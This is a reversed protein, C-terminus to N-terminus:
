APATATLSQYALTMSGSACIANIALQCGGAPTLVVQGSVPIGIGDDAVAATGLAVDIRETGINSLVVRQRTAGAALVVTTTAGVTIGGITGATALFGTSADTAPNIVTEAVNLLGANGINADVNNVISAAAAEDMVEWYCSASTPAGTSIDTEVTLYKSNGPWLTLDAVYNSGPIRIVTGGMGITETISDVLKTAATDLGTVTMATASLTIVGKALLKPVYVGPGPTWGFIQYNFVDADDGVGGFTFRIAPVNECDIPVTTASCGLSLGTPTTSIPVKGALPTTYTNAAFLTRIDGRKM